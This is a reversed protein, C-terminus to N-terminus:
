LALGARAYRYVWGSLTVVGGLHLKFGSPCITFKGSCGLLFTLGRLPAAAIGSKGARIYGVWLVCHFDGCLRPVKRAPAAAIWVHPCLCIRCPHRTLGRESIAVFRGPYLPLKVNEQGPTPTFGVTYLPLAMHYRPNGGQTLCGANYRWDREPM